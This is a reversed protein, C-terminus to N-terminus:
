GGNLKIHNTNIEDWLTCMDITALQGFVQYNLLWLVAQVRVDDKIGELCNTPQEDMLENLRSLMAKSNVPLSDTLVTQEIHDM